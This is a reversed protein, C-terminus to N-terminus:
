EKLKAFKVPERQFVHNSNHLVIVFLAKSELSVLFSSQEFDSGILSMGDGDVLQVNLPNCTSAHFYSLKKADSM